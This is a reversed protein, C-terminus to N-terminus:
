LNSPAYDTLDHLFPSMYFIFLMPSLHSDIETANNDTGKGQSLPRGTAIWHAQFKSGLTCQFAVPSLWHAELPRGTAKWHTGTTKWHTGIICILVPDGSSCWQTSADALTTGTAVWHVQSELPRGTHDTYHYGLTSVSDLKSTMLDPWKGAHSGKHICSTHHSNNSNLHNWKVQLGLYVNVIITSM